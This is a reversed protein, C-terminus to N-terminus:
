LPSNSFSPHSDTVDTRKPDKIYRRLTSLSCGLWEAAEERSDFLIGDIKTQKKKSKDANQKPM